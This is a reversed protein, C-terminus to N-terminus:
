TRLMNPTTAACWVCKAHNLLKLLAANNVAVALVNPLKSHVGVAAIMRQITSTYKSKVAHQLQQFYNFITTLLQM